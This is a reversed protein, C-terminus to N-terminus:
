GRKSLKGGKKSAQIHKARDMAAFGKPKTYPAKGGMRGINSYFDAGYKDRNAKAAALGGSKTGAM